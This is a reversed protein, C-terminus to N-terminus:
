SFIQNVPALLAAWVSLLLHASTVLRLTYINTIQIIMLGGPSTAPTAHTPVPLRKEASHVPGVSHGVVSQQGSHACAFKHVVHLSLDLFLNLLLHM